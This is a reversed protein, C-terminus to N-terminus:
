EESETPESEESVEEGNLYNLTEIAGLLKLAVAENEQIGKKMKEIEAITSQYREKFTALLEEPSSKDITM